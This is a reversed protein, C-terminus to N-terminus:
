TEKSVKQELLHIIQSSYITRLSLLSSFGKDVSTEVYFNSRHLRRAELGQCYCSMLKQLEEARVM